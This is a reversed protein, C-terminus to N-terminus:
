EGDIEYVHELKNVDMDFFNYKGYQEVCLIKDMSWYNNGNVKIKSVDIYQKHEGINIQFHKNKFKFEGNAWVYCWEIVYDYDPNILRKEGNYDVWQMTISFQNYINRLPEGDNNKLRIVELKRQPKIDFLENIKKFVPTLKVRKPKRKNQNYLYKEYECPNYRFEINQFLTKEIM